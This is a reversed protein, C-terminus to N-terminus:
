IHSSSDSIRVSLELVMEIVALKAEFLEDADEVGLVPGHVGSGNFGVVNLTLCCYTGKIRREVVPRENRSIKPRFAPNVVDGVAISAAAGSEGARDSSSSSM